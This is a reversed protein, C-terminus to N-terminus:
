EELLTKLLYRSRLAFALLSFADHWMKYCKLLPTDSLQLDLHYIRLDSGSRKLSIYTCERLFHLPTSFCIEFVKDLYLTLIEPNIIIVIIKEEDPALSESRYELHRSWSEPKLPILKPSGTLVRTLSVDYLPIKGVNKALILINDSLEPKSLSFKLYPGTEIRWLILMAELQAWM